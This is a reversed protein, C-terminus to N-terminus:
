MKKASSSLFGVLCSHYALLKLWFWILLYVILYILVVTSVTIWPHNLIEKATRRYAPDVKLM